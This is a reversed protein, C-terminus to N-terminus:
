ESIRVKVNVEQPAIQVADHKGAGCCTANFQSDYTETETFTSESYHM